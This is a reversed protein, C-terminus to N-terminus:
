LRMSGFGLVPPLRFFFGGTFTIAPVTIVVAVIGLPHCRAEVPDELNRRSAVDIGRPHSRWLLPRASRVTGTGVDRRRERGTLDGRTGL